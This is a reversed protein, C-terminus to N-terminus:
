GFRYWKMRGDFYEVRGLPVLQKTRGFHVERPTRGDWRSHPRDRNYFVTFDRCFRDIQAASAFLWIHAFVAGKFTRFLREIRGNTWPHAPKTLTHTVGRQALFAETLASRFVSGRDTLM